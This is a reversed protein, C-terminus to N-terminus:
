PVCDMSARKVQSPARKTTSGYTDYAPNLLRSLAPLADSLRGRWNRLCLALAALDLTGSAPPPDMASELSPDPYAIGPACHRSGSAHAFGPHHFLGATHEGSWHLTKLGRSLSLHPLLHPVADLHCLGLAYLDQPAVCLPPSHRCLRQM